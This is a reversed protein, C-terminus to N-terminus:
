ARSSTTASSGFWCRVAKNANAITPRAVGEQDAVDAAARDVEVIQHVPHREDAPCSRGSVAGMGQPDVRRGREGADALPHTDSTPREGRQPAAALQRRGTGKGSFFRWRPSRSSISLRAPRGTAHRPSRGQARGFTRAGGSDDLGAALAPIAMNSANERNWRFSRSASTSRSSSAAAPVSRGAPRLELRRTTTSTSLTIAAVTERRGRAAEVSIAWAAIAVSSRPDRRGHLGTGPGDERQAPPCPRAPGPCSRRAAPPVQRNSCTGIPRLTIRRQAAQGSGQNPQSSAPQVREAPMRSDQHYLLRRCSTGADDTRRVSARPWIWTSRDSPRTKVVILAAQASDPEQFAIAPTYTSAAMRPWAPAPLRGRGHTPKSTAEAPRDRDTQASAANRVFATAAIATASWSSSPRGSGANRWSASWRGPLRPLKKIPM